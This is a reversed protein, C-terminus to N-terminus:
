LLDAASRAIPGLPHDLEMHDANWEWAFGSKWPSVRLHNLSRSLEVNLGGIDDEAPKKNEVLSLFIRYIAERLRVARKLADAAASPRRPAKRLLEQARGADLLAAQESWSLFDRYSNLYEHPRVGRKGGVSNCFDLCLEGGVFQFKKPPADSTKPVANM